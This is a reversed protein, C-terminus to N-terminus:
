IGYRPMVLDEMNMARHSDPSIMRYDEFTKPVSSHYQKATLHRATFAGGGHIVWNFNTGFSLFAIMIAQNVKPIHCRSSSWITWEVWDSNFLEDM